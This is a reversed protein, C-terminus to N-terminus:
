NTSVDGGDAQCSGCLPPVVHTDLFSGLLFLFEILQPSHCPEVLLSRDSESNSMAQREVHQRRRWYIEMVPPPELPCSPVRPSLYRRLLEINVFRYRGFDRAMLPNPNISRAPEIGAAEVLQVVWGSDHAASRFGAAEVLQVVWGSDHAASRFGAAEV